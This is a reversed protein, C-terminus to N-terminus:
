WNPEANGGTNKTIKREKKKKKKKRNIQIEKFRKKVEHKDEIPNKM